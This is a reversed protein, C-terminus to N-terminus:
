VTLIIMFFRISLNVSMMAIKLLKNIIGSAVAAVTPISQAWGAEALCCIWHPAQPAEPAEEHSGEGAGFFSLSVIAVTMFMMETNPPAKATTIIIM